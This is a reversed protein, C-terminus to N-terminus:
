EVIQVPTGRPLLMFLEAVDENKMRVCGASSQKGLSANEWTGHIGYSTVRPTEGTAELALWHTGLINAPDGYPVVKGGETWWEPHEIRDKIKFTGAPTSSNKGTGVVYKKFFKGDISLVLTNKSKSVLVSFNPHNPFLLRKGPQIRTPDTIGNCKQILLAPCVYRSAIASLADGSKVVYDVKDPGPRATTFLEINLAGLAAEIAPAYASGAGPLAEWYLDRAEYVKGEDQLAKANAVLRDFDAQTLSGEVLPEAPAPLAAPAPAAEAVAPAESGTPAPEEAEPAGKKPVLLGIVLVLAVLGLIIFLLPPRRKAYIDDLNELAM